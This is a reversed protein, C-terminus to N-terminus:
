QRVLVSSFISVKKESKFTDYNVYQYPAYKLIGYVKYVFVVAIIALLIFCALRIYPAAKKLKAKINPVITKYSMLGGQDFGRDAM